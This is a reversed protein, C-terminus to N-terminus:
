GENKEYIEDDVIRWRWVTLRRVKWECIELKRWWEVDKVNVKNKEYFENGEIDNNMKEYKTPTKNKGKTRM